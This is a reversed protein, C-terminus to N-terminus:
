DKKHSYHHDYLLKRIDKIDSKSESIDEKVPNVVDQLLMRTEEKTLVSKSLEKLEKERLFDRRVLWGFAPIWIYKIFAGISIGEASM